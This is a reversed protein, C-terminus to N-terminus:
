CRINERTGFDYWNEYIYFATVIKKKSLTKSILDPM